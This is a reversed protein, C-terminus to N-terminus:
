SIRDVRNPTSNILHFEAAVSTNVLNSKNELIKKELYSSNLFEADRRRRISLRDSRFAKATATEAFQLYEPLREKQFYKRKKKSTEGIKIPLITAISFILNNKKYPIM